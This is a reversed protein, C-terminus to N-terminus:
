QQPTVDFGDFVKLYDSVLVNTTNLGDGSYFSRGKKEGSVVPMAAWEQAINNAFEEKTIRGSLFKDLGRWKLLQVAMRDQLSSSFLESGTLGLERKLGKLTKRIIQYRGVASSPSGKVKVFDDQWQLVQDVTFSTFDIKNNKANGFFANYNGTSEHQSVFDLLNTLADPSSDENKPPSLPRIELPEKPPFWEPLKEGKNLGEHAVRAFWPPLTM